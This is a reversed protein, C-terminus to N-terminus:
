AVPGQGIGVIHAEGETAAGEGAGGAILVVAVPRERDAAVEARDVNRQAVVAGVAIALDVEAAPRVVAQHQGERDAASGPWRRFRLRPARPAGDAKRGRSSGRE